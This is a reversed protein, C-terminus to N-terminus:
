GVGVPLMLPLHQHTVIGRLYPLSTVRKTRNVNLNIIVLHHLCVIPNTYFNLDNRLVTQVHSFVNDNKSKCNISRTSSFWVPADILMSASLLIIYVSAFLGRPRPPRSPDAHLPPSRYSCFWLCLPPASLLPGEMLLPDLHHQFNAFCIWLDNTNHDFPDCPSRTSSSVHQNPCLRIM